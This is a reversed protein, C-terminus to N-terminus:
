SIVPPGRLSVNRCHPKKTHHNIHDFYKTDIVELKIKEKDDQTPIIFDDLNILKAPLTNQEFSCYSHSHDQHEQDVCCFENCPHDDKEHSHEELCCAEEVFQNHHHHPITNHAIVISYVALIIVSIYRRMMM